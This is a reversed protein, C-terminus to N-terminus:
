GISAPDPWFTRCENKRTGSKWSACAAQVGDYSVLSVAGGGNNLHPQSSNWYKTTATNKGNGVRLTLSKGPKITTGPTFAYTYGRNNTLGFGALSLTKRSTNKIVIRENKRAKAGEKNKKTEDGDPNYVVKTIKLGYHANSRTASYRSTAGIFPYQMHARINGRPDLLYAGGGVHSDGTSPSYNQHFSTTEGAYFHGAKGTGCIPENLKNKKTVAQGKYRGSHLYLSKGAALKTGKPLVCLDFSATRIQWGALSVSKKGTNRVRVWEDNPNANDNGDADWRVKLELKAGKAPATGGCSDPNWLGIGARAAQQSLRMYEINRLNEGLREPLMMSLVQGQRLLEAQVDIMQGDREVFLTRRARGYSSSTAVASRTEARAGLPALANLANAASRAHCRDTAYVIVRGEESAQTKVSTDHAAEMAQVSMLRVPNMGYTKQCDKLFFKGNWCSAPPRGTGPSSVYLTDGDGHYVVYIGSERVQEALARTGAGAPATGIALLAALGAALAATAASVRATLRRHTRHLM